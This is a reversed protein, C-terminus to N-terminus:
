EDLPRRGAKTLYVSLGRGTGAGMGATLEDYDWWALLSRHLVTGMRILQNMIQASATGHDRGGAILRSLMGLNEWPHDQIQINQKDDHKIGQSQIQPIHDLVYWSIWPEQMITAPAGHFAQDWTYVTLSSPTLTPAWLLCHCLVELYHIRTVHAEFSPTEKSLRNLFAFRSSPKREWCPRLFSGESAVM